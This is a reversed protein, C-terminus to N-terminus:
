NVSSLRKKKGAISKIRNREDVFVLKPEHIKLEKEDLQIFSAIIIIDGPQTLRAAAGNVCIKGSGAPAPIAYTTFRAGNSVNWIHVEEYHMIDASDLLKQDIEISGEYDVISHTVTARHIKSKLMIRQM